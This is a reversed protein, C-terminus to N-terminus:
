RKERRECSSPPSWAPYRTDTRHTKSPEGELSGTNMEQRAARALPGEEGHERAGRLFRSSDSFDRWSSDGGLGLDARRLTGLDTQSSACPASGPPLRWSQRSDSRGVLALLARPGTDLFAERRSNASCRGVGEATPGRNRLARSGPLGADAVSGIGLAGLPRHKAASVNFCSGSTRPTATRRTPPRRMPAPTPAFSQPLQPNPRQPVTDRPCDFKSVLLGRQSARAQSAGVM